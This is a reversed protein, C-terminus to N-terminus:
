PYTFQDATVPVSAGGPTTVVIDVTGAGQAPAIATMRTGAANVTVGTAPYMGFMVLSPAWLSTGTIIVRTGGTDPGTNPHVLTIVPTPQTVTLTLTRTATEQIHIRTQHDVVKVTFMSTRSVKPKGTIQGALTLHLGPPLTGSELSWRYPPNGAVATLPASYAVRVSGNALSTTVVALPGVTFSQQIQPAAAYSTNGSQNADIICTGSGIFSVVGGSISCVATSNGDVTVEVPIGSAGGTAAPTYTPGGVMANMPPASTFIITQTGQGVSFSQSATPAALYTANGAQDADVTCGGVGVFSVASGSVTCISPTESSYTVPNGSGGGTAGVTYTPGGVVANAPETSTFTISQSLTPITVGAEVLTQGAASGVAVCDTSDTCSLGSLVSTPSPNSAASWTSGDWSEISNGGVAVCDTPSTCYLGSISGPSSTASWTTGNWSYGPTMCFTPGTCAVTGVGASISPYAIASWSSGIQVYVRPGVTAGFDNWSGVAMCFTSTTCSVSSLRGLGYPAITDIVGTTSWTSGHWTYVLPFDDASWDVGVAVCDTPSTCSVASLSSGNLDTLSPTTSWTTGNWSEVLTQGGQINSAVVHGVAVCFTASTCSVGSLVDGLSGPNPSLAITWATGDWSEILTQSVGSGNQYSGVAVCFTLSTCSVSDLGNAGTGQNPSPTVVWQTPAAQANGTLLVAGVLSGTLCALVLLLRGCSARFRHAAVRSRDLM